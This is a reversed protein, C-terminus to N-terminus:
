TLPKINITLSRNALYDFSVHLNKLLYSIFLSLSLSLPHVTTQQFLQARTLHKNISCGTLREGSLDIIIGDYRSWGNPPWIYIDPNLSSCNTKLSLSLSLCVSLSIPTTILVFTSNLYDTNNPKPTYQYRTDIQIGM